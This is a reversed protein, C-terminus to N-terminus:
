IGSFRTAPTRTELFLQNSDVEEVRIRCNEGTEIVKVKLPTTKNLPNDLGRSDLLALHYAVLSVLITRLVPFLTSLLAVPFAGIM